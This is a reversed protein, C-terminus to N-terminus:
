TTLTFDVVDAYNANTQIVYLSCDYSQGDQFTGAVASELEFTITMELTSEPELDPIEVGSTYDGDRFLRATVGSSTTVYIDTSSTELNDHLGETDTVPNYLAIKLGTADRNEDTNNLYLTKTVTTTTDVSGDSDVTSSHDVTTSNLSTKMSAVNAVAEAELSEQYSMGEQFADDVQTQQYQWAIGGGILAGIALMVIGIKMVDKM